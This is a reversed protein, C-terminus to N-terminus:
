LATGARAIFGVKVYDPVNDTIDDAYLAAALEYDALLAFSPPDGYLTYAAQVFRGVQIAEPVSFTPTSM